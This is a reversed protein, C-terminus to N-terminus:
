SRRRRASPLPRQDGGDDKFREERAEVQGRVTRIRTVARHTEVLRDRMTLLMDRQTVLEQESATIRPDRVIEVSQTLTQDGIKLEVTYTGPVVMPGVSREWLNLDPANINPV